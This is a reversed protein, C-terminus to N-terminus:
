QSSPFHIFSAVIRQSHQSNLGSRGDAFVISFAGQTLDRALHPGYSDAQASQSLFMQARNLNSAISM